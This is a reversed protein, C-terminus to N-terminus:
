FEFNLNIYLLLAIHFKFWKEDTAFMVGSGDVSQKHWRRVWWQFSSAISWLLCNLLEVSGFQNRRSSFCLHLFEYSSCLLMSVFNSSSELPLLTTKELFSTTEWTSFLDKRFNKRCISKLNGIVLRELVHGFCSWRWVIFGQLFCPATLVICSRPPQSNSPGFACIVWIWTQMASLFM